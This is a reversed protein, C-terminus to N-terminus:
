EPLMNQGLTTMKLGVTHFEYSASYVIKNFPM